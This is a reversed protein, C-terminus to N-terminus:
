GSVALHEPALGNDFRDLMQLYADELHGVFRPTDFLACGPLNQELRSRLAQMRAPDLALGVAISVYDAPSEAVLEPLGVAHLLSAAVRGTFTAVPCTLVPLGTWLADSGTTGASYYFSDLFLDALRYSALYTALDMRPAIVIREAAIGRIRAADKLRRAAAPDGEVLWLVSSGTQRLIEMWADFVPPTIKYSNNFCCFVFEAAPLGADSRTIGRGAMQRHSGNVQFCGPLHVVKESYDARAEPPVVISDAILYDIYPAGMSGLYGLYSVQLPAVRRAFIGSRVTGTFGTLDVAIDIEMSRALAAIEDDSRGRVDIFRCFASELRRRMADMPTAACSFGIIEFRGRDHREFLEATLRAVPHDYFDSSFYAIRVKERPRSQGTAATGSDLPPYKTTAYIEACRRQQAPSSPISFLIFPSTAPKGAEVAQLLKAVRDTFEEWDHLLMRCHLAMGAAFPFDPDFELARDYAAMADAYRRSEFLVAGLKSWAEADAPLLETARQCPAVAEGPRGMDRLTEGLNIFPEPFEPARAIAAEYAAIARTHHGLDGLANGLNNYTAADDVGLQIASQFAEVAGVADGQCYRAIGLLHQADARSSDAAVIGELLARSEAHSGEQLLKLALSTDSSEIEESM